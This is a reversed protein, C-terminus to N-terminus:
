AWAYWAFRVFGVLMFILLLAAAIILVGAFWVQWFSESEKDVLYLFILGAGFPVAAIIGLALVGGFALLIWFLLAKDRPTM